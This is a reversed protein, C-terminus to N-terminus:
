AIIKIKNKIIKFKLKKLNKKAPGKLVRGDVSFESKHCPCQFINLNKNFKVKCGLHTCIDSFVDIENEKKLIIVSFEPFHNIGHKLNSLDIDVIKRGKKVPFTLFKIVGYFIVSIVLFFKILFNRKSM